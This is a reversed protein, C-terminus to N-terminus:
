ILERGVPGGFDIEEHAHDPTCKSILEELTPKDDKVPKLIIREGDETVKIPSGNKVGYKKAIRQPIRVGISGGWQQATTTVDVVGKRKSVNM